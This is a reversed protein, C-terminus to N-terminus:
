YIDLGNVWSSLVKWLVTVAFYVENDKQKLEEIQSIYKQEKQTGIIWAVWKRSEDDTMVAILDHVTFNGAKSLSWSIGARQTDTSMPMLKLTADAFRENLKVLARAAEVRIDKDVADFATVLANLAKKDRLEGLSWAAGARIEAHQKVNLLTRILLDSSEPQGVEGLVIVCELRNELYTDNLMKEFFPVSEKDAMKLLSSAAELRIYIHEKEDNMGQKLTSITEDSKFYSLAKATGYRDSISTSKMLEIYYDQSLTGSCPVKNSVPVVSALIQNRKVSDGAHVLPTLVLDGKKLSLRIMRNDDKRRYKLCNRDISVVCGEAKAIASPWVLRAEFGETAGKPKVTFVKNEALSERMEKVRVYQVLEDAKWDIPQEGSKSCKVFAILDNDTLGFDWGRKPDSISHSMTIQLDTKARSEVRTGCKVCLIDPVRVRKIKIKKWIKFSMSGRELEIPSHGQARLDEFVRTTGVAGASIKELFSVDTKFARRSSMGNERQIIAHNSKLAKEFCPAIVAQEL